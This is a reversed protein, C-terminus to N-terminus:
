AVAERAVCARNIPEGREIIHAIILRLTLDIEVGCLARDRPQPRLRARLATTPEFLRKTNWERTLVFSGEAVAGEAGEGQEDVSLGCPHRAM